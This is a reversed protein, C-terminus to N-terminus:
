FMDIIKLCDAMAAMNNKLFILVFNKVSMNECGYVNEAFKTYIEYIGYLAQNLIQCHAHLCVCARMCTQLSPM